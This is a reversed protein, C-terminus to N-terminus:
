QQEGNTIEELKYQYREVIPLLVINNEQLKILKYKLATNILRNSIAQPTKLNDLNNSWYIKGYKEKLTMITKLWLDNTCIREGFENPQISKLESLVQLLVEDEKKDSPFINYGKKKKDLTILAANKTIELQYNTCEQIFKEITNRAKQTNRQLFQYSENNQESRNIVPEFLLQKLLTQTTKTYEPRKLKSYYEEFSDYDTIKQNNQIIPLPLYHGAQDEIRYLIRIENNIDKEFDDINSNIADIIWILKLNELKTVARTVSRRNSQKSWDISINLKKLTRDIYDKLNDFMFAKSNYANIFALCIYYIQYDLKNDFEIIGENNKTSVPLKNLRFINPNNSNWLSYEPGLNNTLIKNIENKNQSILKYIENMKEEENLISPNKNPNSQKKCIWYNNLLADICLAITEDNM